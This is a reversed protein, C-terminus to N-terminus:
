VPKQGRRKKIIEEVYTKFQAFDKLGELKEKGYGKIFHAVAIKGIGYTMVSAVSSNAVHGIVPIFKFVQNALIKGLNSYLGIFGMLETESLTGKDGMAKIIKIMTLQLPGLIVADSIPLPNWCVTAAIISFRIILEECLEELRGTLGERVKESQGFAFLLASSSQRFTESMLEDCNWFIKEPHWQLAAPIIIPRPMLKTSDALLKKLWDVKQSINERKVAKKNDDAANDVRWSGDPLNGFGSPTIGDCKNMVLIVNLDRKFTERCQKTLQEVFQLERDIGARSTADVVYFVVHPRNELIEKILQKESEVAAFVENLGRTDIVEVFPDNTPYFYSTSCKTESYVANTVAIPADFILNILSSKGVGTAGAFAIRPLGDFDKIYGDIIGAAEDIYNAAGPVNKIIGTKEALLHSKAKKLEEVFDARQSKYM